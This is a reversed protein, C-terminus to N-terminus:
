YPQDSGIIRNTRDNVPVQRVTVDVLKMMLRNRLYKSLSSLHLHYFIQFFAIRARGAATDPVLGAKVAAQRM